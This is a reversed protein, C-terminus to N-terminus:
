IMSKFCVSVYGSSCWVRVTTTGRRTRRRFTLRRFTGRNPNEHVMVWGFLNMDVVATIGNEFVIITTNDLFTISHNTYNNNYNM